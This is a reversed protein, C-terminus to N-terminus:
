SIENARAKSILSEKIYVEKNRKLYYAGINDQYIQREKTKGVVIYGLNAKFYVKM